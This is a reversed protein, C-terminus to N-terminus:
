TSAQFIYRTHQIHTMVGLAWFMCTKYACWVYGEQGFLISSLKWLTNYDYLVIARSCRMSKGQNAKFMGMGSVGFTRQLRMARRRHACVERLLPWRWSSFRDTALHTLKWAGPDMACPEPASLWRDQMCRLRDPDFDWESLSQYKTEHLLSFQGPPSECATSRVGDPTGHNLNSSHLPGQYHIQIPQRSWAMQQWYAGNSPGFSEWVYLILHDTLNLHM